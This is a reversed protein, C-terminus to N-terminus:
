AKNRSDNFSKQGHQSHVGQLCKLMEKALDTRDFFTAARLANNRINIYLDPDNMVTQAKDLLEKPQQPDFLLGAKYDSIITASEGKVGHLIPVGMAMAEFIKSPIVTEFLQSDRLHIVAVNLISWFKPIDSRAVQGIMHFNDLGKSLNALNEFEAGTGVTLFALRNLEERKAAFYAAEVMTELHHAMGHTGVYGVIFKSELGLEAILKRDPAIPTFKEKDIGNPVVTIKCQPIKQSLLYNKFSQTVVVIHDARRYLFGAVPKAIRTLITSQRMGVAALSEPWIDRMEFVFPKRKLCSLFYASCVTFFQPSTGVVVDVKHVFLGGIFASLMFSLFDLLRLFVGKNEAIFTWVRIVLIGDITETQFLRNKYGDFVKGIPFNPACTIITVKHGDKVWEKAHEYTRNAPANSEPPFNDTLFLIHM